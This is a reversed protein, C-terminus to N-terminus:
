ATVHNEFEDSLNHILQSVYEPKVTPYSDKLDNISWGLSLYELIASVPVRTGVFCPTGNLVGEDKYIIDKLGAKITKMPGGEM